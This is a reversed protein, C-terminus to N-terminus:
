CGFYDSIIESLDARPNEEKFALIENAEDDSVPSGTYYEIERKIQDITM